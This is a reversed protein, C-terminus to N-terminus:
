DSKSTHAYQTLLEDIPRFCPALPKTAARRRTYVACVGIHWRTMTHGYFQLESVFRLM